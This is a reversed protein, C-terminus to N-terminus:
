DSLPYGRLWDENLKAIGGYFYTIGFQIKVAWVAWQDVCFSRVNVFPWNPWERKIWADLSYGRNAPVFIMTFAVLIVFYFHNLYRAQELLYIYSFVFFMATAAFRYCLGVMIMLGLIAMVIFHWEMLELTPWPHVWSFGPYTFYYEKGTYYREIWGHDFYRTVEWFMIAGYGVRFVAMSSGDVPTYMWRLIREFRENGIIRKM